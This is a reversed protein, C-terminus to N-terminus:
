EASVEGTYAGCPSASVNQACVKIHDHLMAKASPIHIIMPAVVVEVKAQDFKLKNLLDNTM